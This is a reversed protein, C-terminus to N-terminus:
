LTQNRMKRRADRTAEARAYAAQARLAHKRASRSVTISALSVLVALVSVIYGALSLPDGYSKHGPM